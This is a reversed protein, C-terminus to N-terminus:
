NFIRGRCLKKVSNHENTNKGARTGAITVTHKMNVNVQLTGEGCWIEEKENCAYLLFSIIPIFYYIIKKM